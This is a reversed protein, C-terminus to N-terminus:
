ACSPECVAEANAFLTMELKVLKTGPIHKKCEFLAALYTLYNEGNGPVLWGSSRLSATPHFQEFGPKVIKGKKDRQGSVIANRGSGYRFAIGQNVKARLQIGNLAAAVRADYVAFLDPDTVALIKSLSAIGSHSYREQPKEAVDLHRALTKNTNATVGGWKVVIWKSIRQRQEKDASGWKECLFRKLAINAAANSTYKSSDFGQRKPIEWYFQKDLKPLERRFWATLADIVQPHNNRIDTRLSRIVDEFGDKPKPPMNIKCHVRDASYLSSKDDAQDESQKYRERQLGVFTARVKEKGSGRQNASYISAGKIL